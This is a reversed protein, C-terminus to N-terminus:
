PNPYDRRHDHSTIRDGCVGHHSPRIHIKGRADSAIGIRELATVSLEHWRALYASVKPINEDNYIVLSLPLDPQMTTQEASQLMKATANYCTFALFIFGCRNITSSSRAILQISSTRSM